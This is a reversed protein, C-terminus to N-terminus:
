LLKRWLRLLDWYSKLIVKLNAGTQHGFKRPYHNVGVESFKFGLKKAKALMEIQTVKEGTELPLTAEFASKKILKFACSYDRAPFDLLIKALLTWVFTGVSRSLSDARRLRYGLIFDAKDTEVLFKNIESFDFQGDSDTFAVWPYKSAQFGSKLAEGYGRNFDHTILHIYNNKKSLDEVIKGTRDKSGDDIIIVEYNKLKLSQLVKLAKRIINQINEEENYAPFFVSLSDVKM